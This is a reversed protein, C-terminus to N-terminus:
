RNTLKIEILESRDLEQRFRRMEARNINSNNKDDAECILNFDGICLWPTGAPRCSALETLFNQKNPGSTPGYVVSLVFPTNTHKMTVLRTLRFDGKSVASGTIFDRHWAILVGGGGGGRTDDVPLYDLSDSFDAGMFEMALVRDVIDLKM